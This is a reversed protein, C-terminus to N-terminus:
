LSDEAQSLDAGQGLLGEGDASGGRRREYMQRRYFEIIGTSTGKGENVSILWGFNGKRIGAIVVDHYSYHINRIASIVARREDHWALQM